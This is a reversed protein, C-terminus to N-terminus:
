FQDIRPEAYWCGMYINKNGSALCFGWGIYIKNGGPTFFFWVINFYKSLFGVRHLHKTGGSTCKRTGTTSIM